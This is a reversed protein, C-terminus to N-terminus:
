KFEGVKVSGGEGIEMEAEKVIVPGRGTGAEELAKGLNFTLILHYKGKPLAEKWTASLLASDGPFTYIDKFEGRALVMNKEDLINFNGGATIDVNGTNKFKISILFPDDSTTHEVSYDSLQGTRNLSGEAEIYFLTAVRIAINMGVKLGGQEPGPNNFVSEFFLVAYYGGKAEPPVRVSYKLKQKSFPELTFEAPSFSIWTAASLPTTGAPLFEKTGDAPPLYRWDELYARISRTESTVNEINIEGYGSEGPSISLRIKSQDIYPLEIAQAFQYFGIFLFIFFIGTSIIKYGKIKGRM